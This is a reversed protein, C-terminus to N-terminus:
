QLNGRQSIQHTSGSSLSGGRRRSRWFQETTVQSQPPYIETDPLSREDALYDAL